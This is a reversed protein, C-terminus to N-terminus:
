FSVSDYGLARLKDLLATCYTQVARTAFTNAILNSAEGCTRPQDACGLAKLLKLQPQTPPQGRWHRRKQFFVPAGERSGIMVAEDYLNDISSDMKLAVATWTNFDSKTVKFLAYNSFLRYVGELLPPPNDARRLLAYCSSAAAHNPFTITLICGDSIPLTVLRAGARYFWAEAASKFLSGIEKSVSDAYLHRNDDTAELFSKSGFVFLDVEPDVDLAESQEVHEAGDLGVKLDIKFMATADIVLLDRKGTAAWPRLGRGLVQVKLVDSETPKAFLICEVAPLDVGVTLVECNCIIDVQGKQFRSFLRERAQHAAAGKYLGFADFVSDADIHAAQVGSELCFEAFARSDSVSPFFALTPRDAANERWTDFLLTRWNIADVPSLKKGNAKAKIVIPPLVPVLWQNEIGWLLSRSFCITEFAPPSSPDGIVIPQRLALGDARIPTATLGLRPVDPMARFLALYSQAAAYHCEDVIVLAFAGHALLAHFRDSARDKHALTQVSGIVVRACVDDDAGRVLGVDWDPFFKLFASATQDALVDRNVLFLVRQHLDIHKDIFGAAVATKGLGTALHIITGKEGLEFLHHYAAAIAEIQYDRLKLYM